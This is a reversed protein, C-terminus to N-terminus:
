YMISQMPSYCFMTKFDLHVVHSKSLLFLLYREQNCIKHCRLHWISYCSCCIGPSSRDNRCLVGPPTFGSSTTQKKNWEYRGSDRDLHPCTFGSSCYLFRVPNIKNKIPPRKNRHNQKSIYKWFLEPVYHLM